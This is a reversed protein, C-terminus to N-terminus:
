NHTESNEEKDSISKSKEDKGRKEVVCNTKKTSVTEPVWDRNDVFVRQSM